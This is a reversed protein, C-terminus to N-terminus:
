ITERRIAYQAFVPVSTIGGCWDPMPPELIRADENERELLVISYSHPFAAYFQPAYPTHRRGHSLLRPQSFTSDLGLLMSTVTVSPIAFLIALCSQPQPM